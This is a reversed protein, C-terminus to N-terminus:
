LVTFAYLLASLMTYVCWGIFAVGVAAGVPLLVKFMAVIMDATAQDSMTARRM